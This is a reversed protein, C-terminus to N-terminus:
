DMNLKLEDRLENWRSADEGTGLFVHPTIFIVLEEREKNNSRNRFLQGLLPISGLLPVKNVTKTQSDRILGGLIITEGDKLRVTSDLVRSNITPPTESNLDGVPTNFEPHIEATVEGSSSVWPTIELSVNAEIKEFRESEQSIIQNPSQLPTNTKLIYYQTTGIEISATHGNLTAIQPRSRISAKGERDLAQIKFYFDEPLRGINSIGIMNTFKNVQRGGGQITLGGTQAAGGGFIGFPTLFSSDPAAGQAITAGLEFIDSTNFDVVLAEILIQPTAHDIEDVFEKVEVLVDNTGIVMLGNQEKVVDISAAQKLNQPILELAATARLHNLRILKTTAIGSIKKDGILYMDGEQRYTYETGKFLYNLTQPLSLDTSKATIRGQPTSYTILNIDMQYSIERLVDTIPAEVVDMDILGDDTNIWFTGPRKGNKSSREMGLRDVIYIGDKQRLSYGNNQLLTNLGIEFPVNQIYGSVSGSVGNRVVINRNSKRSILRAVKKLAVENIELSLTDNEVTIVPEPEPKPPPEPKEFRRIRFITGTQELELGNEECLYIIAELVPIESLRITVSNRIDNEVILNLNFERGLGRFIDRIDADRFNMAEVQSAANQPLRDYDLQIQESHKYRSIFSSDPSWFSEVNTTDTKNKQASVSVFGTFLIVIGLILRYIVRPFPLRFPSM